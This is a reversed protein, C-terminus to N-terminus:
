LRRTKIFTFKFESFGYGIVILFCFFPHIFWAIDKIKLYGRLSDYFPIIFTMSFIIFKLLNKKDKKSQPNYVLYRRKGRREDYFLEKVYVRRKVIEFLGARSLHIISNHVAAYTDYGINMLDAFADVHTYNLSDTNVKSMAKRRFLHGNDGMTPLNDLTFRVISYNKTTSVVEGKDYKKQTLPIKETKKLYFLTPDPAGFLASYRTTLNFYKRYTNYASYSCIIEKQEIFPRVMEFLWDKTPLINDSELVLILDGKALTHGYSFRVQEQKQLDPRSIVKCGYMKALEVTGNTSGGDMLIHEKINPYTQKKVSELVAKFTKLDANYTGTQITVSPLKKM